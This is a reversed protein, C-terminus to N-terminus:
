DRWLTVCGRSVGHCAQVLCSFLCRGNWECCRRSQDCGSAFRRSVTAGGRPARRCGHFVGSGFGANTHVTSAAPLRSPWTCGAPQRSNWLWDTRPFRSPGFSVQKRTTLRCPTLTETLRGLGSAEGPLRNEGRMGFSAYLEWAFGRLIFAVGKRADSGARATVHHRRSLTTATETPFM